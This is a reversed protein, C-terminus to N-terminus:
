AQAQKVVVDADVSCCTKSKLRHLHVNSSRQVVAPLVQARADVTRLLPDHVASRDLPVLSDVKVQRQTVNRAHHSEAEHQVGGAVSARLLRTPCASQGSASLSHLGVPSPYCCRYKLLLSRSTRDTREYGLNIKLSNKVYQIQIAGHFFWVDRYIEKKGGM